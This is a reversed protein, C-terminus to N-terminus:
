QSNKDSQEELERLLKLVERNLPDFTKALTLKSKALGLKGEQLAKKADQILIEVQPRRESVLKNYVKSFTKQLRVHPMAEKQAKPNLYNGIKVDYETRKEPNKLVSYAEIVKQYAKDLEEYLEQPIRNVFRDPHYKRALKRYSDRIEKEDANKPVELLEYFDKATSVKKIFDNAQEEIDQRPTKKVSVYGSLDGKKEKEFRSKLEKVTEDLSFLKEILKKKQPTLDFLKLEMGPKDETGKIEQPSITKKVIGWAWIELNDLEEIIWILQIRTGEPKLKESQLFYKESVLQRHYIEQFKDVSKFRIKITLECDPGPRNPIKPLEKM